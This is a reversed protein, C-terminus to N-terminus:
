KWNRMCWYIRQNEIITLVECHEKLDTIPDAYKDVMENWDNGTTHGGNSDYREKWEKRIQKAIPRM